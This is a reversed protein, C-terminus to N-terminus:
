AGAHAIVSAKEMHRSWHRSQVSQKIYSRSTKPNSRNAKQQASKVSTTVRKVRQGFSMVQRNSGPPKLAGAHYLTKYTNAVLAEPKFNPKEM